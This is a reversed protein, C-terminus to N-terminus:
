SGCQAPPSSGLPSKSIRKLEDRLTQDPVRRSAQVIMMRASSPDCFLLKAVECSRSHEEETMNFGCGGYCVEWVATVVEASVMEGVEQLSKRSSALVGVDRSRELEMRVLYRSLVLPLHNVGWSVRHM